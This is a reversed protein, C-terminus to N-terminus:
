VSINKPKSGNLGYLYDIVGRIRQSQMADEPLFATKAEFFVLSLLM